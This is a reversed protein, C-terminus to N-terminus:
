RAALSETCLGRDDVPIGVVRHGAQTVVPRHMAFGPDEMGIVRGSAALASAVLALAQTAGSTIM